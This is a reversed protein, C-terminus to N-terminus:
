HDYSSESFLETQEPGSEEDDGPEAMRDVAVLTEGNTVDILKVGQTNRGLVSIGDVRTRVIKGFSTILMLEDQDDVVLAAVV